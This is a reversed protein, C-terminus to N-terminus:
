HDSNPPEWKIHIISKALKPHLTETMFKFEVAKNIIHSAQITTNNNKFHINNRTLWLYLLIFPLTEKWGILENFM